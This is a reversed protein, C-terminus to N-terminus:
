RMGVKVKVLVEMHLGVETEFGGKSDEMVQQTRVELRCTPLLDPVLIHTGIGPGHTLYGQFSCIYINYNCFTSDLDSCQTIADCFHESLTLFRQNRKSFQWRDIGSGKHSKGSM